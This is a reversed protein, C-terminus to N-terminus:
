SKECPVMQPLRYLFIVNVLSCVSCLEQQLKLKKSPLPEAEVSTVTDVSDNFYADLLHVSREISQSDPNLSEYHNGNYALILPYRSNSSNGFQSCRVGM